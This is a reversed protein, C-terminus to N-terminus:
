LFSPPTETSPNGLTLFTKLLLFRGGFGKGEALDRPAALARKALQGSFLSLPLAHAFRKSISGVLKQAM